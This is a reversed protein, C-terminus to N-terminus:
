RRVLTFGFNVDIWGGRSPGQAYAPTGIVLGGILCVLVTSHKLM